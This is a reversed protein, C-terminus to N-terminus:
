STQLEVSINYKVTVTDVDKPHGELHIYPLLCM